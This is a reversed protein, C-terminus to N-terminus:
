GGYSGSSYSRGSSGFGGRSAVASRMASGGRQVVSYGGRSAASRFESVPARVTRSNGGGAYAYTRGSNSAYCSGPAGMGSACGYLPAAAPPTQMGQMMRGAMFGMMLPMFYSTRTESSGTAATSATAPAQLCANTGFDKECDEKNVFRPATKAYTDLAEGFRAKCTAEELGSSVCDSVSSYVDGMTEAESGNDYWTYALVAAAGAVSVLALKSSRKM